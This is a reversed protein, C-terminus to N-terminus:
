IADLLVALRDLLVARFGPPNMAEEYARLLARIAQPKMRLGPKDERPEFDTEKVQNKNLLTLVIRDVVAHRFEEMWACALSPRGPDLTHYFGVEPDLGASELIGSLERTLLSYGFNLLSNIPDTAGRKIRRKTSQVM